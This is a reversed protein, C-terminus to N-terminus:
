AAEMSQLDLVFFAALNRYLKGNRLVFQMFLPWDEMVRISSQKAYMCLAHVFEIDALIHGTKLTGKFLRFELTKENTLNLWEHRVYAHNADNLKKVKYQHYEGHVRGALKVINDHTKPSNLFVLIKGIELQSFFNRSVHVHLGTTKHNWSRLGQKAMFPALSPWLSEHEALSFPGTITEFGTNLSCDDAMVIDNSFVTSMAEAAINRDGEPMEAELEVGMWLYPKGKHLENQMVPRAKPVEYGHYEKIYRIDRENNHDNDNDEARAADYCGTCLEEDDSRDRCCEAQGCNYCRWDNTSVVNCGLCHQHGSRCSTCIVCTQATRVGDDYSYIGNRRTCALENHNRCRHVANGCETCIGNFSNNPHALELTEATHPGEWSARIRETEAADAVIFRYDCGNCTYEVAHITCV